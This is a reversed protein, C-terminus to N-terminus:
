RPTRTTMKVRVRIPVSKVTYGTKTPVKVKYTKAFTRHTTRVVAM